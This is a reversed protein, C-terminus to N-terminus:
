AYIVIGNSRAADLLEGTLPHLDLFEYGWRTPEIQANLAQIVAYVESDDAVRELLVGLALHPMDEGVIQFQYLYAESIEERRCVSQLKEVLGDPPPEAPQGILYSSGPAISRVEVGVLERAASRTMAVPSAGAGDVVIRDWDSAALIEVLVRGVLAIYPSGEPKWRTLELESTFAPLVTRGEDDEVVVFSLEEREDLMRSGIEVRGTDPIPVLLECRLLDDPNGGKRWLRRRLSM